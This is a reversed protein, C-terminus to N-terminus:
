SSPVSEAPTYFLMVYSGRANIVHTAVARSGDAATATFTVDVENLAEFSDVTVVTDPGLSEVYDRAIQRADSSLPVFLSVFSPHFSSLLMTADDPRTWGNLLSSDQPAELDMAPWVVRASDDSGHDSVDPARDLTEAAVRPDSLDEMRLEMVPRTLSSPPATRTAVDGPDVYMSIRLQRDNPATGEVELKCGTVREDEITCYSAFDAPDIEADPLVAAIQAVMSRVADTPDGDLRILAATVDASPPSELVAFTDDDPRSSKVVEPPEPQAVGEPNAQASRAADSVGREGLAVILENQYASILRSSRYRALPGLQTGGKPVSLGYALPGEPGAEHDSIASAPTTGPYPGTPDPSDADAQCGALVAILAIGCMMQKLRYTM